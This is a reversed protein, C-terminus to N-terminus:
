DRKQKNENSRRKRNNEQVHFVADGKRIEKMPCLVSNHMQKGPCRICPGQFCDRPVHGTKLCNPCLAKEKVLVQKARLNM